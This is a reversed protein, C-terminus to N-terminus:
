VSYITPLTLHTYSVSTDYHLCEDCMYPTCTRRVHVGDGCMYATCTDYYLCGKVHYVLLAGEQVSYSGVLVCEVTM